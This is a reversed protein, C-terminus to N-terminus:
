NITGSSHVACTCQSSLATNLDSHRNPETYFPKKATLTLYQHIQPFNPHLRCSTATHTLFLFPINSDLVDIDSM